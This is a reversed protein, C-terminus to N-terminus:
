IAPPLVGNIYVPVDRTWTCNWCTRRPFDEQRECLGTLIRLASESEQAAGPGTGMGDCLLVYYRLGPGPFHAGRDGSALLGFRGASAVGLEVRYKAQPEPETLSQATDQLYRALFRYQNGLAM